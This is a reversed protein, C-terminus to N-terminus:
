VVGNIIKKAINVKSEREDMALKLIKKYAMEETINEHEMLYLKAKRILRDEETKAKLTENERSLRELILTDRELVKIISPIAQYSRDEIMFFRSSSLANYLAGEELLASCYIVYCEKSQLLADIVKYYGKIYSNHIVIVNPHERLMFSYLSQPEVKPASVNYETLSLIDWVSREFTKDNSLIFIKKM